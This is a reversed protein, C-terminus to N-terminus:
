RYQNNETKSPQALFIIVIITGVVPILALFFMAGSRGTDHLRRWTLALSPVLIALSYLGSLTTFFAAFNSLIAFVVGILFNALFVWWFEPITAVGKFDAFNKWMKKYYEIM